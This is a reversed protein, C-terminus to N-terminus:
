LTGKILIKDSRSIGGPNIGKKGEPIATKLEEYYKVWADFYQTTGPQKFTM